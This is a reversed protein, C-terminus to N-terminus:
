AALGKLEGLAAELVKRESIVAQLFAMAEGKSMPVRTTIAVGKKVEITKNVLLWDGDKTGKVTFLGHVLANRQKERLGWNDLLAIVRIAVANKPWGSRLLKALDRTRIAASEHLKPSASMAQTWSESFAGLIAQEVRVFNDLCQGRWHNAAAIADTGFSM